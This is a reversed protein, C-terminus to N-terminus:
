FNNGNQCQKQSNYVNRMPRFFPMFPRVVPRFFDQIARFFQAECPGLSCSLVALFLLLYTLVKPQMKLYYKEPSVKVYIVIHKPKETKPIKKVSEVKGGLRWSVSKSDHRNARLLCECKSHPLMYAIYAFFLLLLFRRLKRRWRLGRGGKTSNRLTCMGMGSCLRYLGWGLCVM